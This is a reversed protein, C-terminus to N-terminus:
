ARTRAFWGFGFGVLSGAIAGAITAIGVARLPHRRVKLVADAAFPETAQRAAGIARQAGRVNEKVSEFVPWACPEGPSETM